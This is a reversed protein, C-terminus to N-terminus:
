EAILFVQATAPDGIGISFRHVGPFVVDFFDSSKVEGNLTNIETSAGDWVPEVFEGAANQILTQITRTDAFSGRVVYWFRKFSSLDVDVDGRSFDLLRKFRAADVRVVETFSM